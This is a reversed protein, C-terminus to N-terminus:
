DQERRDSYTKCAVIMQYSTNREIEMVLENAQCRGNENHVCTDDECWVVQELKM